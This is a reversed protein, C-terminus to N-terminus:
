DAVQASAFNIQASLMITPMCSGGAFILLEVDCLV